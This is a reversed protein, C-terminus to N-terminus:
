ARPSINRRKEMVLGDEGGAYYRALRDVPAYGAQRYLAIAPANSVRVTLKLVPQSLRAETRALLDKGLGRRQYEPHIGLTAIWGEGERRHAEGVAFGVIRDDAVVKLRVTGALLSYGIELPGWADRGFCARELAWVGPFDRWTAPHVEFQIM